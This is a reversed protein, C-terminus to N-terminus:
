SQDEEAEEIYGGEDVYLNQQFENNMFRRRRNAIRSPPFKTVSYPM